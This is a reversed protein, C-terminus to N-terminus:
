TVRSGTDITLFPDSRARSRSANRPDRRARVRSLFPESRSALPTKGGGDVLLRHRPTSDFVAGPTDVAQVRPQGQALFRSTEPSHTPAGFLLIMTQEVPLSRWYKELGGGRRAHM